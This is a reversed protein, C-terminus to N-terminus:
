RTFSPPGRAVCAGLRCPPARPHNLQWAAVRLATCVIEDAVTGARAVLAECGARLLWQGVGGDMLAGRGHRSAGDRLHACVTVDAETLCPTHRVIASLNHLAAARVALRADGRAREMLFSAQTRAHM